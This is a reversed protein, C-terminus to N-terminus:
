VVGDEKGRKTGEEIIVVRKFNYFINIIFIYMKKIGM